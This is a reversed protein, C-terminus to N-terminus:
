VLDIHEWGEHQWKDKWNCTCAIVQGHHNSAIAHLIGEARDGTEALELHDLISGGQCLVQSLANVFEVREGGSLNDLPHYKDDIIWGIRVKGGEIQISASGVSLLKDMEMGLSCAVGQILGERKTMLEKQSEKDKAINIEMEGLRKQEKELTEVVGQSKLMDSQRDQLLRMQEQLEYMSSM